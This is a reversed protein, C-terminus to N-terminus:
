RPEGGLIESYLALHARAPDDWTLEAPARRARARAPAPDPLGPGYARALADV